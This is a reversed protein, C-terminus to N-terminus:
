DRPRVNRVFEDLAVRASAFVKLEYDSLRGQKLLEAELQSLREDAAKLLQGSKSHRRLLLTLLIETTLARGPLQVNLQDLPSEEM